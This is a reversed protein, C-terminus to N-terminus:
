QYRYEFSPPLFFSFGVNATFVKQVTGPVSKVPQDEYLTANLGIELAMWEVPYFRIGGGFDTAIHPGENRPAVSTATWVAGFGASLFLDFHVIGMGLFSFKGYVPSWVGDVVALGYIQSSLLQSQFAIKGERVANSRALTFYTGRVALAFSDQFSYALRLGPGFKLYYPDNITTSFLPALEFRHAKLFGKRQVAKVKDGLAVDKESFPLLPPAEAEKAEGGPPAQPPPPRPQSLDIPPLEGEAPPKESPAPPNGPQTLDIGPMDQGRGALPVALFLLAMTLPTRM